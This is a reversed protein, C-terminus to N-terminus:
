VQSLYMRLQTLFALCTLRHAGTVGLCPLLEAGDQVWLREAQKGLDAGSNPRVFPVGPSFSQRFLNQSIVGSAQLGLM